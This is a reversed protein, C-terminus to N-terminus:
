GAELRPVRDMSYSFNTTDIQIKTGQQKGEFLHKPKLGRKKLEQLAAQLNKYGIQQNPVSDNVSTMQGGGAVLVILEELPADKLKMLAWLSAVAQDVYRAGMRFDQSEMQPLLSHSLGAIKAQPWLVAIGVCSGLTATLIEGKKAIKLEGIKVHLTKYM